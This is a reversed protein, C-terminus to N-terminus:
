QRETINADKKRSCVFLLCPLLPLLSPSFLLHVSVSAAISGTFDSDRTFERRSPHNEVAGHLLKTPANSRDYLRKAVKQHVEHITRHSRAMRSIQINGVHSVLGQHAGWKEESAARWCAAEELQM